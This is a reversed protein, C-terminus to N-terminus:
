EYVESVIKLAELVKPFGTYMAILLMVEKVQEHTIGLNKLAIIHSKLQPKLQLTTLVSIAVFEKTKLDVSQLPYVSGYAIEKVYTAFVPDIEAMTDIIRTWNHKYLKEGIEDANSLRKVQDPIGM